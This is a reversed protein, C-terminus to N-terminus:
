YTLYINLLFNLIVNIDRKNTGDILKDSILGKKKVIENIREDITDKCMLTYITINQKQGIRHCRDIAQEKLGMNWPEDLFIVVTGNTLTIGTGMAGITGCIYDFKGNQFDDVIQQRENDKTAGTIYTGKYEKLYEMIPTIMKTWNTFIVVKKNNLVSECVLEKLRDLKASEQITSSLIGTYGTAQRLRILESLPNVASKIMDINSMVENKIEKYIQEQKATMEVYEDIYVKEPLDLIDEKLRRIMIKSMMEKIEEMNKYGVIQYGGYGGFICYHQKFATFNHNEYGLWKLIVYVDIASNLVPTGTMAIRCEPQIKMIGKSQQSTPNKIKHSEDLICMNIINSKCLAQLKDAIKRDRFSEVNTIIFYPLKDIAKLDNLKDLNSGVTTKGNITKQGLIHGRENSHTEIEKQWNWKLSNVGCVILCHKYNKTLKRAVAIDISQKTKGCGMEDGLFWCDNVLGFKFSDLQHSFPKTKFQFNKPIEVDPIELPKINKSIEIEESSLIASKIIWGEWNNGGSEDHLQMYVMGRTQKVETGFMTSLPMPTNNNWKQMFDFSPTSPETMYKKVTIKYMM